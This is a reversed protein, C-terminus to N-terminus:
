QTSGTALPDDLTTYSGNSYLFGHAHMNEDDYSGVIQGENNIGNAFAGFSGAGLPGDLTTVINWRDKKICTVAIVSRIMFRSTSERSRAYSVARRLRPMM